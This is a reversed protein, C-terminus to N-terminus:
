AVASAVSAPWLAAASTANATVPDIGVFILAPFTLFSGGGAVSNLAGGVTAAAVLLLNSPPMTKPVPTAQGILGDCEGLLRVYERGDMTASGVRRRKTNETANSVPMTRPPPVSNQISTPSAYESKSEM